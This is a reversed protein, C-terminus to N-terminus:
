VCILMLWCYFLFIFVCIIGGAWHTMLRLKMQEVETRIAASQVTLRHGIEQVRM